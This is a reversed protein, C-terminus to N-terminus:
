IEYVKAVAEDVIGYYKDHKANPATPYSTKAFCVREKPLLSLRAVHKADACTESMNYICMYWLESSIRANILLIRTLNQSQYWGRIYIRLRNDDM